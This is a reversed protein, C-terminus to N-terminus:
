QVLNKEDHIVNLIYEIANAPKYFFQLNPGTRKDDIYAGIFIKYITSFDLGRFDYKKLKGIIFEALEDDIVYIDYDSKRFASKVGEVLVMDMEAIRYLMGYNNSINSVFRNWKKLGDKNIKSAIRSNDEYLKILLFKACYNYAAKELFLDCWVDETLKKNLGSKLRYRKLIGRQDYKYKIKFFEVFEKLDTIIRDIM